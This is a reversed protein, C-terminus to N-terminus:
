DRCFWLGALLKLDFNLMRKCKGYVWEVFDNSDKTKTLEGLVRERGYKNFYTKKRHRVEGYLPQWEALMKLSSIACRLEPLKGIDDITYDM